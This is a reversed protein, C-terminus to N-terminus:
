RVPYGPINLGLIIEHEALLYAGTNKVTLIGSGGRKEFQKIRAVLPDDAFVLEDIFYPNALDPEQIVVHIHAPAGGNPYPAPKITWVEFRGRQDTKVWGRIHGHRRAREDLQPTSSYNGSNDTQWYYLIVNPAVTKGDKQYVTGRLLMKEGAENWGATTDRFDLVSPMGVSMIECGDCNQNVRPKQRSQSQCVAPLLVLFGITTIVRLSNM